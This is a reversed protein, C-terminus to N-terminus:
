GAYEAVALIAVVDAAAAFFLRGLGTMAQPFGLLVAASALVYAADAAVFYVAEGRSIAPKRSVHAAHAAFAVFGAGLTWLVAPSLGFAPGLLHGAVLFAVANAATIWANVALTRRLLRSPDQTM